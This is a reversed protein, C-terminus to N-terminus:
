AASIFAMADADVAGVVQTIFPRWGVRAQSM